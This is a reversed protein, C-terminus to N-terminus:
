SSLENIKQTVRFGREMADDIKFRLTPTKRLRLSEHLKHRIYGAAHNLAEESKQLKKRGSISSIYIDAYGIDKSVSVDTVSLLTDIRPDKVVGRLIMDSVQARILHEIRKLRFESM